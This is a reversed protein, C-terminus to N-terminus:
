TAVAANKLLELLARHVGDLRQYDEIPIGPHPQKAKGAVLDRAEVLVRIEPATLQIM